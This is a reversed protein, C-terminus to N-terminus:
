CGLQVIYGIVAKHFTLAVRTLVPAQQQTALHLLCCLGASGECAGTTSWPEYPCKPGWGWELFDVAFSFPGWVLIPQDWSM